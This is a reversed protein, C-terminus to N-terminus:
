TRMRNLAGNPACGTLREEIAIRAAVTISEGTEAALQRALEDTRPDKINLSVYSSYCSYKKRSRFFLRASALHTRFPTRGHM